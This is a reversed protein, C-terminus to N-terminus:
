ISWMQIYNDAQLPASFAFISTYEPDGGIFVARPPQGDDNKLRRHQAIIHPTLDVGPISNIVAVSGGETIQRSVTINVEQDTIEVLSMTEWDHRPSKLLKLETHFNALSSYRKAAIYELNGWIKECAAPLLEWNDEWNQLGGTGLLMLPYPRGLQDCSSRVLGCVLQGAASGKSWFRFSHNKQEKGDKAVLLQAGRDAWDFFARALPSDDGSMFFDRAVPHKGGASWLWHGRNNIKQPM